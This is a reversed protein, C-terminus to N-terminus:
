TYDSAIPSSDLHNSIYHILICVHVTYLLLPSTLLTLFPIERLRWETGGGTQNGGLEYANTQKAAGDDRRLEDCIRSLLVM